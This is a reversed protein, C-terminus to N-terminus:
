GALTIRTISGIASSTIKTGLSVSLLRVACTNENLVVGACILIAALTGADDDLEGSSRSGLACAERTPGILTQRVCSAASASGTINQAVSVADKRVDVRAASGVIRASTDGVSHADKARSTSLTDAFISVNAIRGTGANGSVGGRSAGGGIRAVLSSADGAGCRRDTIDALAVGSPGM